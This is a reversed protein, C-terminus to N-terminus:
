RPVVLGILERVGVCQRRFFSSSGEDLTRRPWISCNVIYANVGRFFPASCPKYGAMVDTVTKVLLLADMTWGTQGNGVGPLDVLWGVLGDFRDIPRRSSNMCQGCPFDWVITWRCRKVYLLM